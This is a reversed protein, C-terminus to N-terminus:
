SMDCGPAVRNDAFISEIDATEEFRHQADQAFTGQMNRVGSYDHEYRSM